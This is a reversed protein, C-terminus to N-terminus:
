AAEAEARRAQREYFQRTTREQYHAWCDPGSNYRSLITTCGPVCCRTKGDNYVTNRVVVPEWPAPAPPSIM